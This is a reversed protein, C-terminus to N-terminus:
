PRPPSPSTGGAGDPAGSGEPGSDTPGRAGTCGCGAAWTTQLSLHPRAHTKVAHQWMPVIEPHGGKAPFIELLKPMQTKLHTHVM